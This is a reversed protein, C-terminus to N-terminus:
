LYEALAKLLLKQINPSTANPWKSIITVYSSCWYKHKHMNGTLGKYSTKKGPFVLRPPFSQVSSRRMLTARTTFNTFLINLIFLLQDLSTLVWQNGTSIRGTGYSKGTNRWNQCDIYVVEEVTQLNEKLQRKWVWEPSFLGYIDLSYLNSM